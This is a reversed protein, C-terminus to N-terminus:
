KRRNVGLRNALREAERTIGRGIAAVFASIAATKSGEVAPRFWPRAPQHKTGFEQFMGWFADRTHVRTGKFGPRPNRFPRVRLNKKLSGYRQSNVSPKDGVPASAKLAKLWERAGANTAAQLVRKEAQIPLEKLLRRAEDFGSVRSKM